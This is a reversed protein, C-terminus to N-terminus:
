EDDYSGWHGFGCPDLRRRHERAAARDAERM